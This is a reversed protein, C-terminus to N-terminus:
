VVRPSHSSRTLRRLARAEAKRQKKEQLYLRAGDLLLKGYSLPPYARRRGKERVVVGEATLTIVLTGDRRTEVARTVPKTLKTTM